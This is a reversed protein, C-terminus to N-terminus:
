VKEGAATKAAVYGSIACRGLSGIDANMSYEYQKFGGAVNGCAFLGPIPRNDKDYVRFHDDVLPGAQTVLIGVTTRCAYYPPKDIPVLCQPDKGFDVDEGKKCIENYRDVTAQMDEDTFDGGIGLKPGEERMKQYLEKLTNAKLIVGAEVMKETNKITNMPLIFPVHRTTM